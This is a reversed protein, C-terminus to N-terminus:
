KFLAGSPNQPWKQNFKEIYAYLKFGLMKYILKAAAFLSNNDGRKYSLEVVDFGVINKKMFIKYLLDMVEDWVFGGPEPTGTSSIVSWDFADVDFTIFVPDPLNDLAADIDFVGKRYDNMSCLSIQKEKVIEAEEASMSRIGIQLTHETMERIRAMVSAHSLESGEYNERLDAHADIQICSLKGYKEKLAKFYGSSISHDGGIVIVFKGTKLLSNTTDYVQKIMNDPNESIDPPKVTSIGMRYIEANLVEDYLELYASADLVADPAKGTGKGYSVGGEYPFPLIAVASTRFDTFNQDIGLFQKFYLNM